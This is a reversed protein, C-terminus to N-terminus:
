VQAYQHFVGVLLRNPNRWRQHDLFFLDVPHDLLEHRRQSLLSPDCPATKGGPRYPGVANRLIRREQSGDPFIFEDLSQGTGTLVRALERRQRVNMLEYLATFRAQFVPLELRDMLSFIHNLDEASVLGLIHDLAPNWREFAGMKQLMKLEQVSQTDVIVKSLEGLLPGLKSVRAVANLAKLRTNTVDDVVRISLKGYTRAIRISLKFSDRAIDEWNWVKIKRGLWDQYGGREDLIKGSSVLEAYNREVLDRQVFDALGQNTPLKIRVTDLTSLGSLEMDARTRVFKLELDIGNKQYTSTYGAVYHNRAVGSFLPNTRISPKSVDVMVGLKDSELRKSIKRVTEPDAGMPGILYLDIDRLNLEAGLYAHDLIARASGGGIYIEGM